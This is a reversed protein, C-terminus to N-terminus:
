RKPSLEANFVDLRVLSVMFPSLMLVTSCVYSVFLHLCSLHTSLGIGDCERRGKLKTVSNHPPHPPSVLHTGDDM